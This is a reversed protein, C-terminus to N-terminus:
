SGLLPCNWPICVRYLCTGSRDGSQILQSNGRQFDQQDLQFGLHERLVEYLVGVHLLVGCIPVYPHEVVPVRWEHSLINVRLAYVPQRDSLCDVM